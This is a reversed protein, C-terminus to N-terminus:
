IEMQLQRLRVMADVIGKRDFQDLIVHGIRPNREDLDLALVVLRHSVLQHARTQDGADVATRQAELRFLRQCKHVAFIFPRVAFGIEGAMGGAFRGFLFDAGDDIDSYRFVIGFLEM